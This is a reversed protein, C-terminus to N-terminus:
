FYQFAIFITFKFIKFFKKKKFRFKFILPFFFSNLYEYFNFFLKKM